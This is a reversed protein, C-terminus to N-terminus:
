PIAYGLARLQNLQLEDLELKPPPEQWVTESELQAAALEHLALSADPREAFYDRKEGPDGSADFLEELKLGSGARDYTLVYRLSGRLLSLTHAPKMQPTGWTQDLFAVATEQTEPLPKGRAAALIEPLRSRGDSPALPPLELLDLLTPWLDVNQTRTEITLGPELRFPFALILPVEQTERYLNRAHGEFGRELFAEGHDSGIAILTNSLHGGTALDGLLQQIMRDTRLIASDYVDSYSSGFIATSPDYLYEHLDMLHLYLFWREKGRVKLFEAAARVADLDTAGERVTPNRVIATAPVGTGIPREYTDFGQAFGFSPAVWGNRYLGVTRFGAQKLIEAPLQAEEPLGEDYRTVGARLPYLSTWLSAMSSKTWSSQSLHRAFRVGHQALYDITPSTARPYGYSGLRDARLMDILIFLVNLDKRQALREIEEASGSPRRDPREIRLTISLLLLAAALLWPWRSEYWRRPM